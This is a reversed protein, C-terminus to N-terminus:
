EEETTTYEMRRTEGEERKEYPARRQQNYNDRILVEVTTKERRGNCYDRYDRNVQIWYRDISHM